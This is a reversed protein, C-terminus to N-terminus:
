LPSTQPSIDGSYVNLRGERVFGVLAMNSAKALEIALSSPASVSAITPIRALLAKQVIEFSTRGSVFLIACELPLAERLLLHGVCKDVANHRGVDEKIVRLGGDADFVGAAHLGGTEEFVVQADRLHKPLRRLLDANIKPIAPFPKTAVFLSEITRKGCVGCSTSTVTMREANKKALMAEAASAREPVLRVNVVNELDPDTGSRCHAITGVDDPSTIIQEAYLFGAALDIDDGPTRMVVALPAGDIRIELPEEAAVRDRRVDFTGNELANVGFERIREVVM